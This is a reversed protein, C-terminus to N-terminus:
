GTEKSGQSQGGEAQRAAADYQEATTQLLRILADLLGRSMHFRGQVAVKLASDRLSELAERRAEDDGLVVPPLVSGLAVYIGDPTGDPGPVGLQAMAQNIHHGEVGDAGSWDLTVSVNAPGGSVQPPVVDRMNEV